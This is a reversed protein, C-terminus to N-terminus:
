AVGPRGPKIHAQYKARFAKYGALFVRADRKYWGLMEGRTMVNQRRVVRAGEPLDDAFATTGDALSCLTRVRQKYQAEGKYFVPQFVGVRGRQLLDDIVADEAMQIATGIAARYKPDGAMWAYHTTRDIGALRASEPVSGNNRFARLFAQQAARTRKQLLRTRKM